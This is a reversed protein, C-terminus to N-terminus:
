FVYDEINGIIKDCLITCLFHIQICIVPSHLKHTMQDMLSKAIANKASFCTSCGAKSIDRDLYQIVDVTTPRYLGYTYHINM